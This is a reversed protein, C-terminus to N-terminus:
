TTSAKTPQAYAATATKPTARSDPLVEVVAGPHRAVLGDLLDRSRRTRRSPPATSSRARGPRRAARARPAATAHPPQRARGGAPAAALPAAPGARRLALARDEPTAAPWAAALAQGCPRARRCPRGRAPGREGAVPRRRRRPRPGARRAAGHRRAGPRRLLAQLRAADGPVGRRRVGPGALLHLPDGASPCGACSSGAPARGCRRGPRSSPTRSACCRGCGGASSSSPASARPRARVVLFWAVGAYDWLLGAIVPGLAEGVSLWADLGAVTRGGRERARRSASAAALGVDPPVGGQRGRRGHPRRAHRRLDPLAPLGPELRRQRRRPGLRPHQPRVPRRGLRRAPRRRAAGRGVALLGPRDPRREPGAVESAYVQFLAHTM